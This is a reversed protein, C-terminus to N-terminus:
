GVTVDTPICTSRLAYSNYIGPQLGHKVHLIHASISAWGNKKYKGTTTLEDHYPQSLPAIVYLMSGM